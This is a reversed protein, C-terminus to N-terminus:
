SVRVGNQDVRCGDPTVTNTMMRGNGDVYYWKEDLGCVWQNVTRGGWSQFYYWGGDILQWGTAMLATQPDFYYWM